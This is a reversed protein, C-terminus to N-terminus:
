LGQFVGFTIIAIGSMSALASIGALVVPLRPMEAFEDEIGLLWNLTDKASLTFAAIVMLWAAWLEMQEGLPSLEIELALGILIPGWMLAGIHAFRLYKPYTANNQRIVGAPIGTFIGYAISLVGGVILIKAALEM